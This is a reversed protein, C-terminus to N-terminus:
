HPPPWRSTAKRQIILMSYHAKFSSNQIIPPLTSYSALSLTLKSMFEMQSTLNSIVKM